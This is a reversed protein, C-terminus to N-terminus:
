KQWPFGNKHYFFSLTHNLFLSDDGTTIKTSKNLVLGRNRLEFHPQLIVCDSFNLKYLFTRRAHVCSAYRLPYGGMSPDSRSLTPFPYRGWGMGGGMRPDSRSLIPTGVRGGMRLDSMSQPSRGQQEGWRSRPLPVGVQVQSPTGGGM